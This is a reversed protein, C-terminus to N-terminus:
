GQSDLTIEVTTPMDKPIYEVTPSATNATRLILIDSNFCMAHEELALLQADCTLLGSFLVRVAFFFAVTFTKNRIVSMHYFM